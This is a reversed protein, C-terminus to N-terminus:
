FKLIFLVNQIREACNGFKKKEEVKGFDIPTLTLILDAGEPLGERIIKQAEKGQYLGDLSVTFIIPKASGIVKIFGGAKVLEGNLLDYKEFNLNISENWEPSTSKKITGTKQAKEKDKLPGVSIRCYWDGEPLNRASVVKVLLQPM